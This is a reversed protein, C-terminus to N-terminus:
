MHLNNFSWYDPFWAQSPYPILRELDVDFWSNVADWLIYNFTTFHLFVNQKCLWNSSEGKARLSNKIQFGVTWCVMWLCLYVEKLCPLDLGNILEQALSSEWYTAVSDNLELRHLQSVDLCNEVPVSPNVVFHMGACTSIYSKFSQIANLHFKEM